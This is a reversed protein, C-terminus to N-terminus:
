FMAQLQIVGTDNALDEAANPEMRHTYQLQAKIRDRLLYANVGGSIAQLDAEDDVDTNTDWDEFRAVLEVWGPLIFYGAQVFFARQNVEGILEPPRV